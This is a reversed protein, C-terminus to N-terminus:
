PKARERASSLFDMAAKVGAANAALAINVKALCSTFRFVENVSLLLLLVSGSFGLAFLTHEAESLTARPASRFSNFLVWACAVAGVLAMPATFAWMKTLQYLASRGSQLSAEVNQNEVIKTELDDLDVHDDYAFNKTGPDSM